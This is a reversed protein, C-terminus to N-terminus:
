SSLRHDAFSVPSHSDVFHALSGPRFSALWPPLEAMSLAKASRHRPCGRLICCPRSRREGTATGELRRGLEPKTAPKTKKRRAPREEAEEEAEDDGERSHGPDAHLRGVAKDVANKVAGFSGSDLSSQFWNVNCPATGRAQSVYRATPTEITLTVEATIGEIRCFFPTDLTIDAEFRAPVADSRGAFAARITTAVVDRLAAASPVQSISSKERVKVDSASVDVNFTPLKEPAPSVAIPACASLALALMTAVRARPM